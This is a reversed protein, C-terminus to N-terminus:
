NIHPSCLPEYKIESVHKGSLLIFALGDNYSGWKIEVNNVIVTGFLPSLHVTQVLKFTAKM